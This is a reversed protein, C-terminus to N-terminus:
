VGNKDVEFVGDEGETLEFPNVSDTSFGKIIKEFVGEGGANNLSQNMSIHIGGGERKLGAVEMLLERDAFGDRGEKKASSISTDMISPLGDHLKVLTEVTSRVLSGETFIRIVEDPTTKLQTCIDYLSTNGKVCKALVPVLKKAVPHKSVVLADILKQRGGVANELLELSIRLREDLARIEVDASQSLTM